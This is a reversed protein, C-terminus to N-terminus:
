VFLYGNASFMSKFENLDKLKSLDNIEYTEIIHNNKKDLKIPFTSELNYFDPSHLTSVNEFTKQM